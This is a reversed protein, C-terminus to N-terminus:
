AEETTTNSGVKEGELRGSEVAIEREEQGSRGGMGSGSARGKLGNVSERGEGAKWRGIEEEKKESL